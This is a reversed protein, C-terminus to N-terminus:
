NWKFFHKCERFAIRKALETTIVFSLVIIQTMYRKFLAPKSLYALPCQIPSEKNNLM